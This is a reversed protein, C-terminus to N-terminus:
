LLHPLFCNRIWVWYRAERGHRGHVPGVKQGARVGVHEESAVGASKVAPGRAGVSPLDRSLRGGGYAEPRLRRALYRPIVYTTGPKRSKKVRDDLHCTAQSGSTVRVKSIASPFRLSVVDLTCFAKDKRPKEYKYMIIKAM